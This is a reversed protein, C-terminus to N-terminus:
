DLDTRSITPDSRLWGTISYRGHTAFPTVFNVCHPTPVKFISLVNYGPSWSQSTGNDTEPFFSTQGGWDNSWNKTFGLVMAYERSSNDGASRQYNSDDHTTLFDGSQYLTAQPDVKVIKRHNTLMRSFNLFQTGNLFTGIKYLMSSQDLQGAIIADVIPFYKYTYQYSNAARSHLTSIITNREHETLAAFQRPDFKVPLGSENSHVFHWPTSNVLNHHIYDASEATFFNQIRLRQERDFELRLNQLDLEPNIQINM